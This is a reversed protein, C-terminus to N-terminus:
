RLNKQLVAAQAQASFELGGYKKPIIMGFFKNKRIHDWMEPPLDAREHDIEWSNTMAALEDCPGDLFAQEEASLEPKPLDMLVQWNPKGAFLEGDWGVTGAELATKETESM